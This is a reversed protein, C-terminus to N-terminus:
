SLSDLIVLVSDSVLHVLKKIHWHNWMITKWHLLLFLRTGKIYRSQSVWERGVKSRRWWECVELAPYWLVYEHQLIIHPEWRWTGLHALVSATPIKGSAKETQPSGANVGSIYSLFLCVINRRIWILHLWMVEKGKAPM